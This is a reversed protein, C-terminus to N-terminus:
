FEPANSELPLGIALVHCPMKGITSLPSSPKLPIEGTAHKSALLIPMNSTIPFTQSHVLSKLETKIESSVELTDIFNAISHQTIAKNTRTLGKLAEYPKPYGERRLVTQIAEAVVAWNDELDSDLKINSAGFTESNFSGSADTQWHYAGVYLGIFDAQALSSAGLLGFSLLTATKKIITKPM